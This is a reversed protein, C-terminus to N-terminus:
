RTTAIQSSGEGLNRAAEAETRSVPFEAGDHPGDGWVRSLFNQDGIRHFVVTNPRQRNPRDAPLMLAYTRAGTDQNRITYVGPHTEGIVYKGAPCWEDGVHFDFPIEVRLVDHLQAEATGAFIAILAACGFISTAFRTTNRM